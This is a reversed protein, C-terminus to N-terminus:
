SVGMVLCSSSLHRLSNQSVRVWPDACMQCNSLFEQSSVWSVASASMMAAPRVMGWFLKVNTM